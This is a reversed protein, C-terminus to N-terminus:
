RSVASIQGRWLVAAAMVVSDFCSVRGPAETSRPAAPAANTAPRTIASTAHSTASRVATRLTATLVRSTTTTIPKPTKTRLVTAEIM